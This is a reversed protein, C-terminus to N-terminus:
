LVVETSGETPSLGNSPKVLMLDVCTFYVRAKEIARPSECLGSKFHLFMFSRGNLESSFEPDGKKRVGLSEKVSLNKTVDGVSM